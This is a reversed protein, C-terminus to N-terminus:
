KTASLKDKLQQILTEKLDITHTRFKGNFRRLRGKKDIAEEDTICEEATMKMGGDEAEEDWWYTIRSMNFKCAGDECTLTLFYTIRTRNLVFFKKLFVLYEESKAIITGPVEEDYKKFGIVTPKVFREGMWEDAIAEIEKANLGPAPIIEEFTVKNNVVPITGVNYEKKITKDKKKFIQAQAATASLALLLIFPIIRKM